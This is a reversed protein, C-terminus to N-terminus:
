GWRMKFCVADEPLEFKLIWKKIRVERSDFFSMISHCNGGCNDKVWTMMDNYEELSNMPCSEAEYSYNEM